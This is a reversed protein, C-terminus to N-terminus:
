KVTLVSIISIGICRKVNRKHRELRKTLNAKASGVYTYYGEEFHLIGKSGIELDMATSLHLVVLYDGRDQAERRLLEADFRCERIVEPMTFEETWRLAM